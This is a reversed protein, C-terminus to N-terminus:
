AAATANQRPAFKRKYYATTAIISPVGFMVPWLWVYWHNGLRPGITVVSFASWAAIYSGIFNGLHTYWWFMKEKPKRVFSLMQQVAARIGIFGFIIGVIPIVEISTPRFWSLWALLMSTSLTVIAAMWDIPQASGGRALDKLRLVRYGSFAFYFSFVSVLALFKVPFFFALPVATAAVAGMSWLYVKGWRKHQKGGKATVLAVPALLFSMAGGAIHIALFAKVWLPDHAHM